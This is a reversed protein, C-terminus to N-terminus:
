TLTSALQLAQSETENAEIRIITGEEDIVLTNTALRLTDYRPENNSDVFVFMHPRGSIWWGSYSGVTVDQVTTDPGVTKAFFQEDVSGRAECKRTKSM